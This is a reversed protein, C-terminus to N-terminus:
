SSANGPPRAYDLGGHCSLSNLGEKDAPGTGMAIAKARGGFIHQLFLDPWTKVM